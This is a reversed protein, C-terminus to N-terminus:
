RNPLSFYLTCGPNESSVWIKGQHAEVIKRGIAIVIDASEPLGSEPHTETFNREYRCFGTDSDEGNHHIWFVDADYKKEWGIEISPEPMSAVIELASCLLNRWLITIRRRDAVALPMEPEVRVPVNTAFQAGQCQAIVSNIVDIMPFSTKEGPIHNFNVYEFINDFVREVRGLEDIAQLADSRARTNKGEVLEIEMMCLLSKISQLPIKLEHYINFLLHELEAPASILPPAIAESYRITGPM